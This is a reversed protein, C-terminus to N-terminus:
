PTFTRQELHLATKVANGGPAPGVWTLGIADPPAGAGDTVGGEVAGARGGVPGWRVGVPIKLAGCIGAAFSGKEGGDGPPPSAGNPAPAGGTASGNAGAAVVGSAPEGADFTGEWPRSCRAESARGADTASSM